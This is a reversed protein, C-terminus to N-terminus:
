NIKTGKCKVEILHMLSPHIIYILRRNKGKSWGVGMNTM